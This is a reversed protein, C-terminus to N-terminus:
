TYQANKIISQALKISGGNVCKLPSGCEPAFGCELAFGSVRLIESDNEDLVNRKKKMKFITMVAIMTKQDTAADADRIKLAFFISRDM